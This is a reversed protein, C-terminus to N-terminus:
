RVLRRLVALLGLGTASMACGHAGCGCIRYRQGLRLLQDGTASEQRMAGKLHEAVEFAFLTHAEGFISSGARATPGSGPVVSHDEDLARERGGEGGGKEREKHLTM